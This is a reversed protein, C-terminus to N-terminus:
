AGQKLQRRYVRYAIHILRLNDQAEDMMGQVMVTRTEGFKRSEYTGPTFTIGTKLREGMYFAPHKSPFVHFTNRDGYACILLVLDGSFGQQQQRPTTKFMFYPFEKDIYLTSYKVEVKICGFAIMDVHSARLAKGPLAPIGHKALYAVALQESEVKSVLYDENRHTSTKVRKNSCTKCYSLYYNGFKPKYFESISKEVKCDRCVKTLTTM